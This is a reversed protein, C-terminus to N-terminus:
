SPFSIFTRRPNPPHAALIHIHCTSLRPAPAYPESGEEPPIVLDINFTWRELPTCTDKSLLVLVLQTINGKLLWAPFAANSISHPTYHM